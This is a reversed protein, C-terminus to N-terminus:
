VVLRKITWSRECVDCGSCHSVDEGLYGLLMRRRCRKQTVYSFMTKWGLIVADRDASVGRSEKKLAKAVSLDGKTWLLICNAANGDRGARGAEQYYAEPRLPIGLHVVVRVNPNDIGMGFANTAVIVKIKGSVFGDVLKTREGAPLGAHYPFAEVGLQRLISSTGDTRNRTPVYVIASGCCKKLMTACLHIRSQEDPMKLVAFFLNSRDFSNLSVVPRKMGLVSLIDNRTGVTASATLAMITPKGLRQIYKGVARYHPRFDHGWESICHAEDMVFLPVVIKGIRETLQSLREPAVYLLKLKGRQLMDWVELQTTKAQSSSLFEAPVNHRKLSEVQDQMLSILPSVVITTGPLVMAPVQFCLSKGGGTPLVALVNRGSLAAIVVKRQAWRFDDYGWYKKLIARAHTLSHMLSGHLLAREDSTDLM